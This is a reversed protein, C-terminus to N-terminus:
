FISKQNADVLYYAPSFDQKCATAILYDNATKYKVEGQYNQSPIFIGNGDIKYTSERKTWCKLLDIDTTFTHNIRKALNQAFNVDQCKQSFHSIKEIDIGCPISSVAVAVAGQTHSISFYFDDTCWKGFDNKYFKVCAPNLNFCDAIAFCLLNWSNTKEQRVASNKIEDVEIQRLIPMPTSQPVDDFSVYVKVTM